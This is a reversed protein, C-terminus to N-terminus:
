RVDMDDSTTIDGNMVQQNDRAYILIFITFKDIYIDSINNLTLLISRM